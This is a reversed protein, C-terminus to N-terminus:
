MPTSNPCLTCTKLPVCIVSISCNIEIYQIAYTPVIRFPRIGAYPPFRAHEIKTCCIGDQESTAAAVRTKCTCLFHMSKKRYIELKLAYITCKGIM